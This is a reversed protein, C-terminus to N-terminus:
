RDAPIPELAPPGLRGTMRDFEPYTNWRRDVSPNAAFYEDLRANWLEDLQALESRVDVGNLLAQQLITFPNEEPADWGPLYPYTALYDNDLTEAFALFGKVEPLTSVYEDVVAPDPDINSGTEYMRARVEYSSFWKFVEFAEKKHRSQGNIILWGGLVMARSKGHFEGDYTPIPGVGWDCKAPFQYNLVGVDWSEGMFMGIHGEAFQSRLADNTLAACGPFLSGEEHMDLLLEFVDAYGSMAWRGNTYDWYAPTGNAEAWQSPMWELPWQEAAPYAFGFIRGQGYETIMKAAHKVEEYSRPPRDPDLGVARFLDRNYILRSNFVKAPIAYVHGKNTTIGEVWYWDPWQDKWEEFGPISDLYAIAGAEFPDPYRPTDTYLDPGEGRAQAEPFADFADDGLTRLSVRIRQESGITANFEDVLQQTLGAMHRHHNWMSLETVAQRRYAAPLGTRILLSLAIILVVLLAPWVVRRIQHM